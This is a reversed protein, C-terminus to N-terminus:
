NFLNVDAAEDDIGGSVGMVSGPTNLIKPNVQNISTFIGAGVPVGGGLSM